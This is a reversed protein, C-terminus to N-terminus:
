RMKGGVFNSKVMLPGELPSNSQLQLNSEMALCVSDICKDFDKENFDRAPLHTYIRHVM